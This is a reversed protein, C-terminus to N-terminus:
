RTSPNEKRDTRSNALRYATARDAPSLGIPRRGPPTADWLAAQGDIWDRFARRAARVTIGHATAIQPWTAEALLARRVDVQRGLTAHRAIAAGVTLLEVHEAATLLAGTSSSTFDRLALDLYRDVLDRLPTRDLDAPTV